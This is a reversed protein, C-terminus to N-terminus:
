EALDTKFSIYYYYGEANLDRIKASAVASGMIHVMYGYGHDDLAIQQIQRALKQRTGIDAEKTMQELLGDVDANSYHGYNASIGTGMVAKIYALGDGTPLTGYAM